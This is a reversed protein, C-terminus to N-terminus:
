AHTCEPYQAYVVGDLESMKIVRGGIRAQKFFFPVNARACQDRLDRAWDMDFPRAGQGSECGCVVWDLPPATQEWEDFGCTSGELSPDCADLAMDRTVVIRESVMRPFGNLADAINIQELMPEVSVFRVTAPTELLFPIREDAARQNEVSVGLWVNRFAELGNDEFYNCMREPRKTLIIFTHQRCAPDKIARFVDDIFSTPVDKHFLDSMSNVFIKQPKRMLCPDNLRDGHCRVDSFERQGWFRNAIREAYCNKCGASVKTCGTVPNWVADAWEISTKGM